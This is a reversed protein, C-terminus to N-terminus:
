RCCITRAPTVRPATAASTGATTCTTVPITTAKYALYAGVFNPQRCTGDAPVTVAGGAMACAADKYFTVAGSCSRNVGCTCSTACTATGGTGVLHKQPYDAPCARDDDTTSAPSAICAVFPAPV